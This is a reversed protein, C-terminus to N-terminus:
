VKWRWLMLYSRSCVCSLETVFIRVCDNEVRWVCVSVAVLKTIVKEMHLKEMAMTKMMKELKPSAEHPREGVEHSRGEGEHSRGGTERSHM